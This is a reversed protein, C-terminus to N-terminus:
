LISFFIACQEPNSQWWPFYNKRPRHFLVKRFVATTKTLLTREIANREAYFLESKVM